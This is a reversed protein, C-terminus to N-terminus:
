SELYDVQGPIDPCQARSSTSILIHKSTFSLKTVDKQTVEVEHPGVVKGEGESLKVGNSLLRQYDM